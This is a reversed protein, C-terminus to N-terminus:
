LSMHNVRKMTEIKTISRPSFYMHQWESVKRQTFSAVETINNAYFDRGVEHVIHYVKAKDDLIYFAQKEQSTTSQKIERETDIELGAIQSGNIKYM